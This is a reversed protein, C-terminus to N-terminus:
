ALVVRQEQNALAVSLCEYSRLILDRFVSSLSIHQFPFIAKFIDIKPDYDGPSSRVNHYFQEFAELQRMQRAHLGGKFASYTLSLLDSPSPSTFIQQLLLLCERRLRKKTVLFIQKSPKKISDAIKYVILSHHVGSSHKKFPTITSLITKRKIEAFPRTIPKVMSKEPQELENSKESVFSSVSNCYVSNIRNQMLVPHEPSISEDASQNLRSHKRKPQTTQVNATQTDAPKGITSKRNFDGKKPWPKKLIQHNEIMSPFATQDKLNSSSDPKISQFSTTKSYVELADPIFFKSKKMQITEDDLQVSATQVAKEASASEGPGVERHIMIPAAQVEQDINDQQTSTSVNHYCVRSTREGIRKYDSSIECKM